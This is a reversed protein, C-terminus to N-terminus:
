KEVDFLLARGPLPLGGWLMPFLIMRSCQRLFLDPGAGLLLEGRGPWSPCFRGWGCPFFLLGGLACIAEPPEGAIIGILLFM